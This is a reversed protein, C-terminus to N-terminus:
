LNEILWSGDPQKKVYFTVTVKRGVIAVYIEASYTKEDSTSSALTTASLMNGLSLRGDADLVQMTYAVLSKIEPTFFAQASSSNGSRIAAAAGDIVTRTEDPAVPAPTPAPPVAAAPLSLYGITIKNLEADKIGLALSRMLDFADAPRGLYYKKLDTPNIYWCEGRSQTQLFIKGAHNKAFEQDDLKALDQNTIGVGLRRMLEFADAPRGLYYKKLDTPNIYWAQGRAEVQLLIRGSLKKALDTQALTPQAASLLSLIIIIKIIKM